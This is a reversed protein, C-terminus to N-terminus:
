QVKGREVCIRDCVKDALDLAIRINAFSNKLSSFSRESFEKDLDAVAWKWLILRRGISDNIDLLEQLAKSTM